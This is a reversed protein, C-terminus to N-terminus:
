VYQSVRGRCSARGIERDEFPKREVERLVDPPLMILPIGRYVLRHPAIHHALIVTVQLIHGIVGIDGTQPRGSQANFTDGVQLRHVVAELFDTPSRSRDVPEDWGYRKHFELRVVYKDDSGVDTLQGM